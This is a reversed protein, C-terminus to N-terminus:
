GEIQDNISGLSGMMRSLPNQLIDSAMNMIENYDIEEDELNYKQLLPDTEFRQKLCDVWLYGSDKVSPLKQLACILANQVISAHIIDPFNNGFTKYQQFLPSPLKILIKDGDLDFVIRSETPLQEIIQMFSGVAYLKEYTVDTNYEAAPFIVLSDGRELDFSFGSYDAHFGSNTYQKISEKAVVFCNFNIHGRISKRSLSIDISPESSVFCKRFFTASCEVECIYEAKGLQILKEIDENEQHLDIHFKFETKTKIPDLFKICEGDVLLPSVDDKVGLVPYPFSANNTKM